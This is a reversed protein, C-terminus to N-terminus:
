GTIGAPRELSAYGGAVVCVDPCEQTRGTTSITALCIVLNKLKVVDAAVLKKRHGIKYPFPVAYCRYVFLNGLAFYPTSVTM